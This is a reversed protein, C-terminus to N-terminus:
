ALLRRVEAVLSARPVTVQSATGAKRYADHDAIELRAQKGAMLDKISVVGNAIEDEGVIVAVPIGYHDAHSLQSKLNMKAGIYVETSIGAERLESALRLSETLPTKGMTVVLVQVVTKREEVLGLHALAALLRDIGVGVGTGPISRDMFREVLRNYRGGGMVSGFQPAQPLMAEYVISTYYDLGRTLSPQIRAHDDHIGMADLAAAVTRLDALAAQAHETSVLQALQEIIEARTAGTVSILNLIRDIVEPALGVGPIPDGSDDIRGPGMERRINDLGVKALKDIVRLVHKQRSPEAIGCDELVADILERNNVYVVYERLGLASLAECMIAIIEADVAVNASGAADIDLQMFQRYRGPGPKDARWVNGMAYRRFPAKLQDPYQALARALGVTQDFRLGAAEGDPTELRWIEKNAEDGGSGFLTEIHEVAPTELPVFGYKEFIGQIVRVVGNRAILDSPLLDRFGKLVRPEVRQIDESM